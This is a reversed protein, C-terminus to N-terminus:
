LFSKSDEKLIKYKEEKIKKKKIYKRGPDIVVWASDILEPRCRPSSLRKRCVINFVSCSWNAM